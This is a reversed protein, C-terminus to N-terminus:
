FLVQVQQQVVPFPAVADVLQINVGEEAGAVSVGVGVQRRLAERVRGDGANFGRVHSGPVEDGVAGLDEGHLGSFGTGGNGGEVGV